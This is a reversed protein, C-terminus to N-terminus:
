SLARCLGRGATWRAKVGEKCFDFDEFGCDEIRLIESSKEGNKKECDSNCIDSSIRM